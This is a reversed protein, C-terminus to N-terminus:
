CHALRRKIKIAKRRAKAAKARKAELKRSSATEVKVGLIEVLPEKEEVIQEVAPAPDLILAMAGHGRYIRGALPPSHDPTSETVWRPTEEVGFEVLKVRLERAAWPTLTYAPGTPFGPWPDIWGENILFDLIWDSRVENLASVDRLDALLAWADGTGLLRLLVQQSAWPLDELKM